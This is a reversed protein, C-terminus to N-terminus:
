RIRAFTSPSPKPNHNHVTKVASTILVASLIVVPWGSVALFLGLCRWYNLRPERDSVGTLEDRRAALRANFEKNRRHYMNVEATCATDVSIYQWAHSATDISFHCRIYCPQAM